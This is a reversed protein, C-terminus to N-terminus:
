GSALRVMLRTMIGDKRVLGVPHDNEVKILADVGDEIMMDLAEANTTEAQVSRTTLAIFKRIQDSDGSELAAVFRQDFDRLELAALVSNANASASFQGGENTFIITLDPDFTQFARIYEAIAAESYYNIRGLTLSIAVPQGLELNQRYQDIESLGAKEIIRLDEVEDVLPSPEVRATAVERFEFAWDGPASFKKIEGTVIGYAALPLLILAIFGVSDTINLRRVAWAVISAILFVGIAITAAHTDLKEFM